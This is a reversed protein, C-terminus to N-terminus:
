KAFTGTGSNNVVEFNSSAANGESVEFGTIADGNIVNLASLSGSTINEDVSPSTIMLTYSAATASINIELTQDATEADATGAVGDSAVVKFTHTGNDAEGLAKKLTIVGSADDIALIANM